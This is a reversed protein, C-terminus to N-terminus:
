DYINKIETGPFYHNLIKKYNINKRSQGIAGWQCLGVGHGSGKGSIIINKNSDFNIDFLTSKLISKGNSNKIINRIQNGVLFITKQIEEGDNIIVNLENVRGSTFRSAIKIDSLKYNPSEILKAKYFRQIFTSESYKETWDYRPSIKCYPEDGDKIGILYPINKNSFVNVVDETYGGCTSHYFITAPKDDFFLLQGKTEDVIDNTIKNEGDVGGYVQDRTDPYIDFFVKNEEMKTFAYTRACISFAKLANYNENGKGIPMEKTMVGKVYDELGIQNVIKIESDYISVLIRGRYKKENISIIENESSATIYFRKSVFEKSGISLNIKDSKLSFKLKNGLNVKALEYDEDSIIVLDNVSIVLDASSNDLLVRIVYPSNFGYNSDTSFRKTASCGVFFVFLTIILYKLNSNSTLPFNKHTIFSSFHNM